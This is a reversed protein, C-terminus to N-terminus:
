FRFKHVVKNTMRRYASKLDRKQKLLEMDHPEALIKRDIEELERQIKRIKVQNLTDEFRMNHLDEFLFEALTDRIDHNEINDLLTAPEGVSDASVNKILYRFIDRHHKNNFYDDQVESALVNYSTADKLALILLYREELNETLTIQPVTQEKEVARYTQGSRRLKANLANSTIGFAESVDKIVLEQRVPDGIDRVADLLQDIRESAQGELVESQAMYHAVPLAAAIRERMADAGERLIFTDPDDDPPLLVIRADMGKALCLLGGRVASRIGAKDGDYLMYVKQSYRNLLLIQEETLATGLSAVANSFGSGYLRLFDFYGESVLAGDLKSIEYKTKFLGYLERGKTYIETGPSNIYKGAQSEANMVRGGFAIVEGINNHIPFMLRDRFLDTMNGSYNGFLGSEKLLAVSHGEKMLHNLLSKEGNLAYGLELQKATEPTVDRKALYELVHSGHRFLNDCFFERATRYILLLQDRKTSVTKTRDFEPLSIGARQALRRVADMFSIHEYDQVFTYVNGAKGCAFCKFIQKSQSVNLSPRSDSHFPCIGRWNSGMHKLPLYSQIVEVIDNSQRIQDILSKDM